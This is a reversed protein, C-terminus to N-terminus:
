ARSCPAPARPARRCSARSSRLRAAPRSAQRRRGTMVNGALKGTELHDVADDWLRERVLQVLLHDGVVLVIRVHGDDDVTALPGVAAATLLRPLVLILAHHAVATM